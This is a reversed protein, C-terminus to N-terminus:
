TNQPRPVLQGPPLREAQGQDRPRGHRDAYRGMLWGGVPRMFFGVAFVAAANLLQATQSAAPFFAKAFYLSFASYVYWDYWEVLNGSSSAFIAKIRRRRDAADVGSPTISISGSVPNSAPM